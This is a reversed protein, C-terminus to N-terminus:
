DNKELEKKLTSILYDLEEEEDLDRIQTIKKLMFNKNFNTVLCKAYLIRGQPTELISLPTVPRRLNRLSGGKYVITLNGKENIRGILKQIKENKTGTLMSKKIKEFDNFRAYFFQSKLKQRASKSLDKEKNLIKLMKLLIKLCIFADEHAIHHTFDISFFSALTSLKFNQPRDPSAEKKGAPWVNKALKITDYVDNMINQVNQHIIDSSIFGVDYQANHACVSSTGLFELFKPLVINVQGADQLMESSIKHFEFTQEPSTTVPKVLEQWSEIKGESTIKVAGFEIIEHFPASLGTTEVDVGVLGKPFYTLCLDIEEHSFSSQLFEDSLRRM